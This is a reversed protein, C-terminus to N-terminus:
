RSPRSLDDKLEQLMKPFESMQHNVVEIDFAAVAQQLQAGWDTVPPDDFQEGLQTIAEAFAGMESISFQERNDWQQYIKDELQQLLGSLKEPNGTRKAM